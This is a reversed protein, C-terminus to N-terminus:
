PIAADVRYITVMPNRYAVVLDGSEVMADFKDLGVQPFLTRELTGVYIYAVQLQRILDRVRELDATQFFEQGLDTRQSVQDGPRQESQHQGIFTPFGTLSAVRLGGARYYDYAQFKGDVQYNGAPAEAVIPSGRVHDLLWHIAQYDYALEIVHEADPWSYKGVTMYATGDLTGIAPRRGPFRDRVRAQVGFFLFVSGAILLGIAAVRWVTEGLGWRQHASDASPRDRRSWWRGLMVGLSLGLFLWAPMSFKFVTNMRYWDGGELFDRVYVLELGVLIGLGLAVLVSLFAEEASVWRRLAALTMLVLPIAALAAAPRQLAALLAAMALIGLLAIIRPRSSRRDAPTTLRDSASGPGPPEPAPERRRFFEILAFSYALFLFIGWVLLWEDLPSGGVTWNLYRSLLPSSGRAIPPQYHAYFPWYASIALGVVLLAALAGELFSMIRGGRWGTLLFVALVLLVYTPLDWTNIAGIAGLALSLLMINLACRLIRHGIQPAATVAEGVTADPETASGSHTNGLVPTKLWNFSLGIVLVGFPLAILHPHLDAFLFTWFPFENITHPIVRSTAWYDYSRASLFRGIGQLGRGAGELSRAMARFGALNGVLLAFTAGLAAGITGSQEGELSGGSRHSLTAGVGVLGTAALAFLSPVALNFAVESAIGTLKMPLSILYLGYYYYNIAGGAFYPDYPPFESSRLIANIFASEMFKEGGNWPQWLDPNLLRIVVFALFAVAFVVEEAVLLKRRARWFEAIGSRQRWWALTGAAGLGAFFVAIVWTRNQWLGLSVGIWHLWGILLWGLGRALGFGRDRLGVMLPYILPWTLMGFLSLTLWWFLVAAPPWESALRNWRFDAIVPQSGAVQVPVLSVGTHPSAKPHNSRSSQVLRSHGPPRSHPYTSVPVGQANGTGMGRKDLPLYRELRARLLGPKLREVNAFVLVQPHDYVTFSEDAEDDRIVFNGLTPYSTFEAVQQYGLEGAFLLRYYQSTMPYRGPLRGITKSLRNSALIIYDNSSLEFALTDLKEPTDADYLPLESGIYRKTPPRDGIGELRLPLGEDWHETLIRSGAPVNAYIWRSARILPHEQRYIGVFALCWVVTTVSVLGAVTGFIVRGRRGWRAALWRYAAVSAGAGCILLFPLVPAMYRLFKAHFAGTVALYPLVWALMVVQAPTARRRVARVTLWIPGSWAVLGLPWGLGWQSLQQVFYLYPLTGIYQRTYPVDWSGSVMGQQAVINSVYARAEILAFPNTLAFTLFLVAGVVAIRGLATAAKRALTGQPLRWLAAVLLPLGLMVASFKSGVALGAASGALLWTGWGGREAWRAALTVTAVVCVTLILDVTYFHSLQIPLVAFAYCGAAMLGAARGFARRGLLFVLLLTMLDCLASILRGAIPLYDYEMLHRGVAHFPQLFAPLAVTTSGMWDALAQGLRATGVLLYLPFHGYAYDRPKGAQDGDGPPWRFPNLTSRAPDLATRLDGPWSITDAVWVIFREDPHIHQFRDWNIHQLRLVAGVVLLLVVCLVLLTRQLRVSV